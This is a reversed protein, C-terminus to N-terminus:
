DIQILVDGYLRCNTLSTIGEYMDPLIPTLLVSGANQIAIEAPVRGFSNNLVIGLRYTNPFSMGSINGIVDGISIYDKVTAGDFRARLQKTAANYAFSLGSASNGTTPTFTLPTWTTIATATINQEWNGWVGSTCTVTYVLNPTNRYGVSHATITIYQSNVDTNETTVIYVFSGDTPANILRDGGYVRTSPAQQAQALLFLDQYDQKDVTLGPANDNAKALKAWGSRNNSIISQVWVGSNNEGLFIM